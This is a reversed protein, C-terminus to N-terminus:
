GCAPLGIAGDKAGKASEVQVDGSTRSTAMLPCRRLFSFAQNGRAIRRLPARPCGRAPKILPRIRKPTIRLKAFSRCLARGFDAAYHKRFKGLPRDLPYRSLHLDSVHFPNFKACWRDLSPV